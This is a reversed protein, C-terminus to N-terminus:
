EREKTYSVYTGDEYTVRVEAIPNYKDFLKIVAHNEERVTRRPSTMRGEVDFSAVEIKMGEEEKPIIEWYNPDPPSGADKLADEWQETAHALDEADFYYVLALKYKELRGTLKYTDM